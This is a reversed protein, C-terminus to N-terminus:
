GALAEAPVEGAEYRELIEETPGIAVVQGRHLWMTRKCLTRITALNHSVVVLAQSQEVLEHMRATSKKRFAHDGVGLLEDIVLIEPQISAAISFALRARMGTSYTRVPLDIHQELESFAVIEDLKAEIEDLRHGLLVGNLLINDRGTLDAQFGAGLTLLASVQGNV